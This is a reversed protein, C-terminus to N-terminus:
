CLCAQVRGYPDNLFLQLFLSIPCGLDLSWYQMTLKCVRDSCIKWLGSNPLMYRLCCM